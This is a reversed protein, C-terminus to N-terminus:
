AYKIEPETLTKRFRQAFADRKKKAEAAAKKVTGLRKAILELKLKSEASKTKAYVERTRDFLESVRVALDFKEQVDKKLALSRKKLISARSPKPERAKSDVTKKPEPKNAKPKAKAEPTKVVHESPKLEIDTGPKPIKIEALKEMGIQYPGSLAKIIRNYLAVYKKGYDIQAKLKASVKKKKPVSQLRRVMYATVTKLRKLWRARTVPNKSKLVRKAVRSWSRRAAKVDDAAGDRKASLSTYRVRSHSGKIVVTLKM